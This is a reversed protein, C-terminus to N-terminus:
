PIPEGKFKNDIINRFYLPNRSYEKMVVPDDWNFYMSEFGLSALWKKAFTTKGIQRPGTLFVMKGANMEPDFIYTGVLREM